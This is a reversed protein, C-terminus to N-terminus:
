KGRKQLEDLLALGKEPSELNAAGLLYPGSQRIILGKYLPDKATLTTTGAKEIKQPDVKAAKLSETYAALAKKAAEPNETLVIFVKITKKDSTAEATFGRKFFNYGLLSEAIYRESGPTIGPAKLLSVERPQTGAPLKSAIAAACATFAAKDPNGDGSASIRVFYTDQYFMLQSGDFFAETGAKVIESDPARYNSYIGFADILSGMQYLDVSLAEKTGTKQYVVYGCAEFGYPMYLESEGNIHEYLNKKTFTRVKGDAAWGKTFGPAPLLKDVTTAAHAPGCALLAVALIIAAYLVARRPSPKSDM